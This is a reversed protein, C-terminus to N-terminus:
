EKPISSGLSEGLGHRGGLSINGLEDWLNM